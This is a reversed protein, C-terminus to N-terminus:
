EISTEPKDTVLGGYNTVTEWRKTESNWVAFGISAIWTNGEQDKVMGRGGLDEITSGSDSERSEPLTAARESKNM